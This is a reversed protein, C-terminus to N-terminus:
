ISGQHLSRHLVVVRVCRVAQELDILHKRNQIDTAGVEISANTIASHRLLDLDAAAGAPLGRHNRCEETAGLDSAPARRPHLNGKM